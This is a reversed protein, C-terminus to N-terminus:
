RKHSSRRLSAMQRRAGRANGSRQRAPALIRRPPSVDGQRSSGVLARLAQIEKANLFRWKGPKLDGM